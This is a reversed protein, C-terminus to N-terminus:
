EEECTRLRLVWGGAAGLWEIVVDVPENEPPAHLRLRHPGPETLLLRAGRETSAQRIRYYRVRQTAHTPCQLFTEYTDQPLTNLTESLATLRRRAEADCCAHELPTWVWM